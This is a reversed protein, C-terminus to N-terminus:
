EYDSRIFLTWGIWLIAFVVVYSLLNFKGVAVGFFEEFREDGYLLYNAAIIFLSMFSTPILAMPLAKIFKKMVVVMGDRHRKPSHSSIIVM